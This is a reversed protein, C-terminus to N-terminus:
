RTGGESLKKCARDFGGACAKKLLAIGKARDVSTGTRALLDEGLMGCGVLDGADCKTQFLANARAGTSDASDVKGLLQDAGCYLQSGLDCAKKAYERVRLPDAPVDAGAGSTYLKALSECGASEHRTCMADLQALGAKVDKTAGEGAIKALAIRACGARAGMTCARDAFAFSQAPDKPVGRGEGYAISVNFCGMPEGAECGRLFFRAGLSENKPVGNGEFHMAGLNVCSTASRLDCARTYLAVAKAGDKAVGDGLAYLAGLNNCAAPSGDDCATQYLTAARAIDRPAGLGKELAEALKQCSGPRHAACAAECEATAGSTCAAAVSEANGRAPDVSAKDASDARPALRPQRYRPVAIASATAAAVVGLVAFRPWRRPRPETTALSNVVSEATTVTGRGPTYPQGGAHGSAPRDGEGAFPPPTKADAPQLPRDSSAQTRFALRRIRNYSDRGIDTGFPALRAAFAEVSSLRTDRDIALAESLMQEVPPPIDPRLDSPRAYTGRLIAASVTPFGNGTFPPTGTLMEYLVVGLAWVDSRPDVSKPSMLQEPSMYLPSGVVATSATMSMDSTATSKSIGFDLVKVSATGDHETTVFLNSPKLDRHVIGLAHAVNVGECAQLLLDACETIPLQGRERIVASLDQGTLHEMVIFPVGDVNGVDYVHAVHENRIRSSNRAEQAFRACIEPKDLLAPLLFKLAVLRDLELHRAALVVGMGGQGLVRTVEYKGLIIDGVKFTELAHAGDRRHVTGPV